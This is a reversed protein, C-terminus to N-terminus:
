GLGSGAGPDAFPGGQGRTLEAVPGHVALRPTAYTERSQESGSRPGNDHETNM